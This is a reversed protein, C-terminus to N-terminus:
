SKPTLNKQYHESEKETLYFKRTISYCNKLIQITPETDPPLEYGNITRKICVGDKNYELIMEFLEDKM